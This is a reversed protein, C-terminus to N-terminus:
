KFAKELRKLAERPKGADAVFSGTNVYNVGLKALKSSTQLNVGGDVQINTKRSMKRLKKIKKYVPSIFKQHEKGPYVGMFLVGDVKSLYLRLRGISTEPNIAIWAEIRKSKILEVIKSVDKSGRCAEYHFIIKKFGKKKLAPIYKGPSFCMLHAEFKNKYRHLNPIDSIKIGKSRVFKGDMFDIQINKAIKVLKDFREKFDKKNEAFVTPIVQNKM